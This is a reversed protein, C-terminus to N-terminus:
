CVRSLDAKGSINLVGGDGFDTVDLLKGAQLASEHVILGPLLYRAAQWVNNPPHRRNTLAPAIRDFLIGPLSCNAM